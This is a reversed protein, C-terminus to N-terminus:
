NLSVRVMTYIMISFVVGVGCMHVCLCACVLTCVGCWVLACVVRAYVGCACVVCACMGCMRVYWVNVCVVCPACVVYMRVFWM